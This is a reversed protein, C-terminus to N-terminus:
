AGQIIKQIRKIHKKPNATLSIFEINHNITLSRANKFFENALLQNRADEESFNPILDIHTGVLILKGELFSQNTQEDKYQNINAKIARLVPNHPNTNQQLYAHMDFFFIVCDSEKIYNQFTSWDKCTNDQGPTDKALWCRWCGDQRKIKKTEVTATAEPEQHADTPDGLCNLFTTKGAGKLGYIFINKKATFLKKVVIAITIATGLIVQIVRIM